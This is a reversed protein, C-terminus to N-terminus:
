FDDNTVEQFVGPSIYPIRKGCFLGEVICKTPNQAITGYYIFRDSEKLDWSIVDPDNFDVVKVISLVRPLSAM